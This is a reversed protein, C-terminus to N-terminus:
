WLDESFLEKTGNIRDLYLEKSIQNNIYAYELAQTRTLFDGTETIFGQISDSKFYGKDHNNIIINHRKGVYITSGKLIASAIIM